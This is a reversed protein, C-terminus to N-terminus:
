VPHNLSHCPSSTLTEKQQVLESLMACGMNTCEQKTMERQFGEFEIVRDSTLLDTKM